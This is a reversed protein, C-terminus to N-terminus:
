WYLVVFVVLAVLGAAGICAAYLWLMDIVYPSM